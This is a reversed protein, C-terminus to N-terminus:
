LSNWIFINMIPKFSKMIITFFTDIIRSWHKIMIDCSILSELRIIFEEFFSLKGTGLRVMPYKESQM